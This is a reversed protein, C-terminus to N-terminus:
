VLDAPVLTAATVGTLVAILIIEGGDVHRNNNLDAGATLSAAPIVGQAAGAMSGFLWVETNGANNTGLFTVSEGPLEAVSYAANIAQLAASTGGDGMSGTVVAYAQSGGFSLSDGAVPMVSGDLLTLGAATTANATHLSTGHNPIFQNVTTGSAGLLNLSTDLSSGLNVVNGATMGTVYIANNSGSLNVTNCLGSLNVTNGGGSLNLANGTGSLNLTDNSDSLANGGAGGPNPAAASSGGAWTIYLYSTGGVSGYSTSIESPTVGALTISTSYSGDHRTDAHLTVGTYGSAGANTVEQLPVTSDVGWLTAADLDHFNVITSWVPQGGRGDVFFTDPANGSPAGTLFNSGPGGNLVSGGGDAVLASNGAGQLIFGAAHTVINAANTATYQHLLYSVPGNYSAANVTNTSQTLPDTITVVSTTAGFLFTQGIVPQTTGDAYTIQQVHDAIIVNNNITDTAIFTGNVIIQLTYASPAYNLLISNNGNGGHITETNGVEIFGNNGSPAYFTDNGSFLLQNLGSIDGAGGRSQYTQFDVALGTIARALAGDARYASTSSITGNIQGNLPFFSGFFNFHSGDANTLQVVSSSFLTLLGHIFVTHTQDYGEPGITIVSM